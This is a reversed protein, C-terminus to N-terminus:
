ENDHQGFDDPYLYHVTIELPWSLLSDHQCQRVLRSYFVNPHSVSINGDIIQM